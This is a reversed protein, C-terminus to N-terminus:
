EYYAIEILHRSPDFFYLSQTAGRAGDSPGPGRMNGVRDFGDGYEIGRERVRRFIAEFEERTVAFALHEGGNTAWPALQIVLEPTVRVTTFPPREGGPALGLIGTYFDVSARVDNVPLIVHDLRLGATYCPSRRARSGAAGDPISV